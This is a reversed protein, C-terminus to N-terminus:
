LMISFGYLVFKHACDNVTFTKKRYATETKRNGARVTKAIMAAIVTMVSVLTNMAAAKFNSDCFAARASM